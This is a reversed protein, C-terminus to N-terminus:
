PQQCWWLRFVRYGGRYLARFGLGWVGFGLGWVGFGLGSVLLGTLGGLLGLIRLSRFHSGLCLRMIGM